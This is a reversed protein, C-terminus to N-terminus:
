ECSAKVLGSYHDFETASTTLHRSVSTVELWQLSMIQGSTIWVASRALPATYAATLEEASCM